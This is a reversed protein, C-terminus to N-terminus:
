MPQMCLLQLGTMVFNLLLDIFERVNKADIIDLLLQYVM